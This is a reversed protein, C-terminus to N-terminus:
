SSNMLKTVEEDTMQDFEDYYAGISGLFPKAHELTIVENVYKKLDEIAGSPAVPVAIVIHDPKKDMLEQIAVRMTLGTAVGDDTIIAVKGTPNAPQHGALYIHRRRKAENKEIEIARELWQPDLQKVEDENCVVHGSETVACIAYERWNPHGVKRPIVLDLPAHLYRAIEVGLPVGGRPLAYVVCEIHKYKDLKKALIRGADVRNKFRM